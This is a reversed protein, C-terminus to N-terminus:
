YIINMRHGCKCNAYPRFGDEDFSITFEINFCAPCMLEVKNLFCLNYRRLRDYFSDYQWKVENITIIEKDKPRSDAKSM